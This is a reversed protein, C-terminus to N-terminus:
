FDIYAIWILPHHPTTQGQTPQTLPVFQTQPSNPSAIFSPFPFPQMPTESPQKITQVPVPPQLVPSSSLQPQMYHSPMFSPFRPLPPMPTSNGSMPYTPIHTPIQAQLYTM